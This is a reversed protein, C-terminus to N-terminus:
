KANKPSAIFHRYVLKSWGRLRRDAAQTGGARGKGTRPHEPSKEGLEGSALWERVPILFGTKPRELIERPLAPRAAAAMDQKTLHGSSAILPVIRRILEIDTFPARVELSHSMSAWDCDRLLQNRLYWRTELAAVKLHASHIEKTQGYAPLLDLEALGEAVFKPDLVQEMEWPLFLSHRLFYAAEFSSGYELLSAYKPSTFRHVVPAALKRTLRSLGPLHRFAATLGVLRPIELFSPYGGFLEDAGVGSLVVKLGADRAAASIFYSNVGDITPSDMDDLLEDFRARFTEGRIWITQHRAGYKAAVKEALATEDQPKGRFEEFGLTVTRLNGGIETALAALTTSDLGGSLFVGVPVDAVLHHKVSDLLAARVRERLEDPAPPRRDGAAAEREGAAFVDKLDCFSRLRGPGVRDFSLSNGAPLSRINRYLTHPDPLHGWLFFGVHGAADPALDIAGTAVLAKIQSAFRVTRSDIAYYLPKIGLHDRALFLSRKTEDWIAFAFMGRLRTTMAEGDLAYLHLLVETDSTSRFTCGRAELETRLTRHNYIEGNFTIVFRGDPSAMPQAGNPSLDIIALRKHGFGVQRDASYWEGEGDPGRRKMRELMPRIQPPGVAPGPHFNFMGAIGCM